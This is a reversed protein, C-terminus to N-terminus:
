AKWYFFDSPKRIAAMSGSSVTAFPSNNRLHFNQARPKLVITPCVCTKVLGQATHPFREESVTSSSIDLPHGNQLPHSQNFPSHKWYESEFPGPPRESLRPSLLQVGDLSSHVGNQQTQSRVSPLWNISEYSASAAFNGLQLAMQSRPTREPRLGEHRPATM